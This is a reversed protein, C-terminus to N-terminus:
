SPTGLGAGLALPGLPGSPGFPGLSGLPWLALMYLQLLELADYVSPRRRRALFPLLMVYKKSPTSQPWVFSCIMVSLTQELIQAVRLVWLDM